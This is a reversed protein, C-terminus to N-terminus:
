RDVALEEIRGEWQLIGWWDGTAYAANTEAAVDQLPVPQACRLICVAGLTNRHAWPYAWPSGLVTHTRM